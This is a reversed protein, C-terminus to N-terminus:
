FSTTYSLGATGPGVIPTLEKGIGLEGLDPRDLFFLLGGIGAFLVGGVLGATSAALLDNRRDRSDMYEKFEAPTLNVMDVELKRLLLRARAESGLAIGVVIGTVVFSAAGLGLLWYSITRQLTQELEVEVTKVDGRAVSLDHKTPHKGVASVVITHKGAELALPGGLPAVGALRGDVRIDAGEPADISVTAPKPELTIEQAILEGEVAVLKKESTFHGNAEVVVKHEGPAVVRTLPTEAPDSGDISIKAGETQSTIMLRTPQEQPQVTVPKQTEREIRELTEELANVHEIADARRGGKEVERLYRRYADIALRLHTPEQKVFYHLRYSQAISFTIAPTPILKNAKEFAAAAELYLGARYAEQGAEFYTRAEEVPEGQAPLSLALVLLAASLM